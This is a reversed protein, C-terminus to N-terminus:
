GFYSNESSIKSSDLVEFAVEFNYNLNIQRYLFSLLFEILDQEFVLLLVIKILLFAVKLFYIQLCLLSSNDFDVMLKSKVDVM